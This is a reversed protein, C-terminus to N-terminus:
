YLSLIKFQPRSYKETLKHAADMDIDNGALELHELDQLHPSELLWQAGLPSIKNRFLDLRKLNRFEADALPRASKDTLGNSSLDLYTLAELNVKELLLNVGEDGLENKMLNLETLKKFNNSKILYQIGTLTIGNDWLSLKEVNRFNPSEALIKLGEDGLKNSKLALTAVNKVKPMDALIRIGKVGVGSNNLNVGTGDENIHEAIYKPLDAIAKKSAGTKADHSGSQCAVLFAIVILVALTPVNRYTRM